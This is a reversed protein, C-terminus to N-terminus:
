TGHGFEFEGSIADFYTKQSDEVAERRILQAELSLTRRFTIEAEERLRRQLSRLGNEEQSLQAAVRDRRAGLSNGTLLPVSVDVGVRDRYDWNESLDDYSYSAIGVVDIVPLRANRERSRRAELSNIASRRAGIQPNAHLASDVVDDITQLGRLHGDMALGAADLACPAMSLGTYETIRTSAQVGTFRLELDDAEAESLQAAIQAAEARTAGGQALLADVSMKQRTFYDRRESIIGRMAQAELKTLYAEALTVSARIEQDLIDYERQAVGAQAAERALRSDGFDYVRQSLRVGVQNDIQSSTLGSDGVGSRGFTSLQPMRLSRAEELDAEAESHRDRAGDVEPAREAALQLGEDFGLCHESSQALASPTATIVLGLVSSIILRLKLTKM